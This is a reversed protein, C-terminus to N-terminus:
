APNVLLAGFFVMQFQQVSCCVADFCQFPATFLYVFHIYISTQCFIGESTMCNSQTVLLFLFFVTFLSVILFFSQSIGCKKTKVESEGKLGSIRPPLQNVAAIKCLRKKRETYEAFLSPNEVVWIKRVAVSSHTLNAADRGQGIKGAEWSGVVLKEVEKYLADGTMLQQRQSEVRLSFDAKNVNRWYVPYRVLAESGLLRLYASTGETKKVRDPDV